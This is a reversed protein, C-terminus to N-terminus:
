KTLIFSKFNKEYDNRYICENEVDVSLSELASALVEKSATGLSGVWAKREIGYRDYDDLHMVIKYKNNDRDQIGYEKEVYYRKFENLELNKEKDFDRVWAREVTTDAIWEGNSGVLNTKLDLLKEALESSLATYNEVEKLAEPKILQEVESLRSARFRNGVLVGSNSEVVLKYGNVGGRNQCRLQAGYNGLQINYTFSEENLIRGVVDKEVADEEIISAVVDSTFNNEKAQGVFDVYVHTDYGDKMCYETFMDISSIGVNEATRKYVNGRSTKNTAGDSDFQVREIIVQSSSDGYNNLDYRKVLEIIESSNLVFDQKEENDSNITSLVIGEEKKVPEVPGKNLATDSTASAIGALALMAAVLSATGLKSIHM